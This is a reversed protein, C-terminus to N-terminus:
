TSELKQLEQEFLKQPTAYNLIKRPYNNMWNAVKNCDEQTVHYLSKDKPYFRRIIRNARENSGRESSCFPHCYYVDLRKRGHIDHEMAYSYAFESGNDVTISKFTGKPYAALVKNLASVTATSTKDPMKVIIEFRTKRETFVLFSQRKGKSKGVVSDMEWHGFSIRKSVENPRKEISTGAPPRSAPRVKKIKRSIDRKPKEILDANTVGPIYGKDIYRYLTTTSVTWKGQEKLTSVIVDPSIGNRIERAVHAAFAYNHGLKVNCGKASAQIDAYDQAIQASYKRIYKWTAGDLHNYFGHQVETYIASASYGLQFAISRYTHGANYLAEIKLRDIWTIRRYKRERKM